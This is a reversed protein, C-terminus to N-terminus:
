NISETEVPEGESEGESEPEANTRWYNKLTYGQEPILANLEKTLEVISNVLEVARENGSIGVEALKKASNIPERGKAGEVRVRQVRVSDPLSLAARFRVAEKHEAKASYLIAEIEDLEHEQWFSPKVTELVRYVEGNKMRLLLM